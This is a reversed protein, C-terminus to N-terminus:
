LPNDKVICFVMTLIETWYFELYLHHYWELFQHHRCRIHHGRMQLRSVLGVCISSWPPSSRKNIKKKNNANQRQSQWINKTNRAAKHDGSQFPCVRPERTHSTKKHKQWKGMLHGPDPTSSSQISEQYKGEDKSQHWVLTNWAFIYLKIHVNCLYIYSDQSYHHRILFHLLWMCCVLGRCWSSSVFFVVM